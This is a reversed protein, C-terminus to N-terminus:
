RRALEAEIALAETESIEEVYSQDYLVAAAGPNEVWGTDRWTHAYLGTEDRTVRIFSALVGDDREVFYRVWSTM